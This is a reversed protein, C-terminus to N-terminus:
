QLKITGILNHSGKEVKKEKPDFSSEFFAKMAVLWDLLEEIGLQGNFNLTNITLMTGIHNGILHNIFTRVVM